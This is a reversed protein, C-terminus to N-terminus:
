EPTSSAGDGKTPTPQPLLRFSEERLSEARESLAKVKQADVTVRAEAALQQVETALRATVLLVDIQGVLTNFAQIRLDHAKIIDAGATHLVGVAKRINLLLAYLANMTEFTQATNTAINEGIRAIIESVRLVERAEFITKDRLEGRRVLDDPELVQQLLEETDPDRQIHLDKEAKERLKDRLARLSDEGEPNKEVDDLLDRIDGHFEVLERGEHIISRMNNYLDVIPERLEHIASEIPAQELATRLTAIPIRGVVFARLRGSWSQPKILGDMRDRNHAIRSKFQEINVASRRTPRATPGRELNM